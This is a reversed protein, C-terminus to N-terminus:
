DIVAGSGIVGTHPANPRRNEREGRGEQGRGAGALASAAEDSLENVLPTVGPAVGVSMAAPESPLRQNVSAASGPRIPRMVGAPCTVSNVAPSVGFAWGVLMTAPGSPAMHNLSRAAPRIPRIAGVAADALEEHGGGLREPDRGAGVAREVEGVAAIVEGGSSRQPRSWTRCACRRTARPSRARGSPLRHNVSFAPTPRSVGPPTTVSNVLPKAVDSWGASMAVPGSPLRHIVFWFFGPASPRTVGSPATVGNPAPSVGFPWGAPMAAPGSPARHNVSLRVGAIPRMSLWPRIV